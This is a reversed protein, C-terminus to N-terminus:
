KVSEINVVHFDYVRQGDPKKNIKEQGLQPVEEVPELKFNLCFYEFEQM